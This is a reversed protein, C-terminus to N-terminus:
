ETAAGGGRSFARAVNGSGTNYAAIMGFHRSQPDVIDSLYNSDLLRLYGAGLKINNAPDYLFEPSPV